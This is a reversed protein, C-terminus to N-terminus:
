AVKSKSSTRAKASTPQVSATAAADQVTIEVTTSVNGATATLTGTGAGVGTVIAVKPNNPSADVTFIDDSSSTYVIQPTNAQLPTTVVELGEQEGIGNIVVPTTQNYTM